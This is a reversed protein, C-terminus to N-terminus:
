VMPAVSCTKCDGKHTVLLYAASLGVLVYVTNEVMSWKGLLIEVLNYGFAFLAWNLGGVVLLIFAVTHLAKM